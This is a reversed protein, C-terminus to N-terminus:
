DGLTIQYGFDRFVIHCFSVGVNDRQIQRLVAEVDANDIVIRNSSDIKTGPIGALSKQLPVKEQMSALDSKERVMFISGFYVVSICCMVCGVVTLKHCVLGTMEIDVGRDM